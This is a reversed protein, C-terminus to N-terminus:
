RGEDRKQSCKYSSEKRFTVRNIWINIIFPTPQPDMILVQTHRPTHTFMGSHHSTLVGLLARGEEMISLKLASHGDVSLKFSQLVCLCVHVWFDDTHEDSSCFFSVSVPSSTM